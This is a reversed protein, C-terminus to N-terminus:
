GKTSPFYGLRVINVWNAKVGIKQSKKIHLSVAFKLTFDFIPYFARNVKNSFNPVITADLKKVWNLPMAALLYLM